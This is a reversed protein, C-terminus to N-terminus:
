GSDRAETHSNRHTMTLVCRSQIMDLLLTWFHKRYNGGGGGNDDNDFKSNNNWLVQQNHCQNKCTRDNTVINM